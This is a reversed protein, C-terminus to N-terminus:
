RRFPGMLAVMTRGWVYGGWIALPFSTVGRLVLNFVYALILGRQGALPAVATTTQWVTSLGWTALGFRLVGFRYIMESETGGGRTRGLRRWSWVDVWALVAVAAGSLAAGNGTLGRISALGSVAFGLGICGLGLLRPSLGELWSSGPYLIEAASAAVPAVESQTKDHASARAGRLWAPGAIFVAWGGTLLVLILVLGLRPDSTFFNRKYAVVMSLELVGIVAVAVLFWLRRV